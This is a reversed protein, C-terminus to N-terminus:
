AATILLKSKSNNTAQTNAHQTKHLKADFKTNVEQGNLKIKDDVVVEVLKNLDIHKKFANIIQERTISNIMSSFNQIFDINRKKIELDLLTSAKSSNTGFGNIFYSRIFINKALSVDSETINDPFGAIATKITSLLKEGNSKKSAASITWPGGKFVSNNLESEINYVLGSNERVLKGLRSSIPDGGLILNALMIPYYDPHLENINCDQGLTVHAQEQEGKFEYGELQQVDADHATSLNLNRDANYSQSWERVITNIYSQIQEQNIDGSASIIFSGNKLEEWFKLVDEYSISDVLQWRSERNSRHLFHGEPYIADNVERDAITEADKYEEKIMNKIGDKIKSFTELDLKPHLLLERFLTSFQKLNDGLTSTNIRMVLGDADYFLSMNAGIDNLQKIFDERRFSGTGSKSLMTALIGMILRDKISLSERPSFIRLNTLPLRHNENCVITTNGDVIRTIKLNPPCPSQKGCISDTLEQMRIPDLVREAQKQFNQTVTDQVTKEGSPKLYITFEDNKTLYKSVVRKIDDNTIKQIKAVRDVTHSWAKFPSLAALEGSKLELMEQKQYQGLICQKKVQALVDEEIGNSAIKELISKVEKKLEELDTFKDAEFLMQISSRGHTLQPILSIEVGLQKDENLKKPFIATSSQTLAYVLADFIVHDPDKIGPMEFAVGLVKHDGAKLLTNERAVNAAITTHNQKNTSTNNAQPKINGFYNLILHELRRPDCVNGSIVITLNNPDKYHSYFNKLDDPSIQKLSEVTGLISHEYGTGKFMLANLADSTVSTNEDEYKKIEQEVVSKEIPLIDKVADLNASQMRESEIKFALEILEPPLFNDYWTANENTAANSCGGNFKVIDMDEGKAFTSYPTRGALLHELLHATGPVKDDKAGVSYVAKLNVRNSSNDPAVVFRIGNDLQLEIVRQTAEVGNDAILSIRPSSIKGSDFTGQGQGLQITNKTALMSKAQAFKYPDTILSKLIAARPNQAILQDIKDPNNKAWDLLQDPTNSSNAINPNTKKEHRQVNLNPGKVPLGAQKPAESNGILWNGIKNAISGLFGM